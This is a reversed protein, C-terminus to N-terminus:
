FSVTVAAVSLTLFGAWAVNQKRRAQEPGGKEISEGLLPLAVLAAMHVFALNRHLFVSDVGGNQNTSKYDDDPMTYGLIATATYAAITAVGLAVHTSGGSSEWESHDRFYRYLMYQEQILTNNNGNLLLYYPNDARMALYLPMNQGPNAAYLFLASGDMEPKLNRMANEGALNTTFWLARTTLGAARHMMKHDGRAMGARDFSEDEQKAPTDEKSSSNKDKPNNYALIKDQFELPKSSYPDATFLGEASLTDTYLFAGRFISVSIISSLILRKLHSKNIQM